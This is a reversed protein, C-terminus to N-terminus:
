GKIGVGDQEGNSGIFYSIVHEDKTEGTGTGM